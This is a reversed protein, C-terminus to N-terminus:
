KSEIYLDKFRVYMKPRYTSITFFANLLYFLESFRLSFQQRQSTMSSLNFSEYHLAAFASESIKLSLGVLSLALAAGAV